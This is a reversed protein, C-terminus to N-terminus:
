KKKVKPVSDFTWDTNSKMPAMPSMKAPSMKAGGLSMKKRKRNTRVGLEDDRVAHQSEGQPDHGSHAGM